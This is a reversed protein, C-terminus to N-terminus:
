APSLQNNDGFEAISASGALNRAAIYRGHNM